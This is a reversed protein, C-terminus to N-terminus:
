ITERSLLMKLLEHKRIKKKLETVRVDVFESILVYRHRCARTYM